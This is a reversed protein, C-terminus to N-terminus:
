EAEDDMNSVKIDLFEGLQVLEDHIASRLVENHAYGPHDMWTDINELRLKEWLDKLVDRNPHTAILLKLAFQHVTVRGAVRAIDSKLTEMQDHEM